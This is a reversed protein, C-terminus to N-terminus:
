IKIQILKIELKGSRSCTHLDSVTNIQVDSVFNPYFLSVLITLSLILAMFRNTYPWLKKLLQAIHQQCYLHGKRRGKGKEISLKQMCAEGKQKYFLRSPNITDPM